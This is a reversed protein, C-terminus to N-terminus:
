LGMSFSFLENAELNSLNSFNIRRQTKLAGLSSEGRGVAFTREFIQKQTKREYRKRKHLRSHLLTQQTQVKSKSEPHIHIYNQKKPLENVLLCVFSLCSWLCFGAGFWSHCDLWIFKLV